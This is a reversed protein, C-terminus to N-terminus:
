KTEEDGWRAVTIKTPRKFFGFCPDKKSPEFRATFTIVSGKIEPWFKTAQREQELAKFDDQSLDGAEDVKAQFAETRKREEAWQADIFAQPLSGFGKWAGGEAAVQVLMKEVEGGRFGEVMKTGLITATVTIRDDSDPMPVPTEEAPKEAEDKVIKFALAVQKESISGWHILKSRLDKTIYHDGKLAANLGPNEGLIARLKGAKLRRTHAKKAAYLRQGDTLHRVEAITSLCIGGITIAKGTPEHVMVAGHVFNTGCVDCQEADPHPNDANQGDKLYVHDVAEYGYAEKEYEGSGDDGLSMVGFYEILEYDAPNFNKPSHIDDRMDNGKPTKGTAM